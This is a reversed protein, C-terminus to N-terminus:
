KHYGELTKLREDYGDIKFEIKLIRTEIRMVQFLIIISIGFAGYTEILTEIMEFLEELDM